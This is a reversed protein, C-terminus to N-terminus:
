FLTMEEFQAAPAFAMEIEMQKYNNRQAQLAQLVFPKRDKDELAKEIRDLEAMIAEEKTEYQTDWISPM